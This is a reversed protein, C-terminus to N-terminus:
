LGPSLPDPLSSWNAVEEPLLVTVAAKNQATWGGNKYLYGVVDGDLAGKPDDPEANSGYVIAVWDPRLVRLRDPQRLVYTNGALGASWEMRSILEGTTGNLWPQELLRLDQTGFQRRPTSSNPRSRFTFRAMSLVSARVLQAAFAPPSRRLATYYNPLTASIEETKSWSLASQNIGLPYLSGAYGFQSYYDELFQPYQGLNFRASVAPPLWRALQDKLAMRRRIGSSARQRHGRQPGHRRRHPRRDRASGPPPGLSEPCPARLPNQGR